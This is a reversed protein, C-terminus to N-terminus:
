LVQSRTLQSVGSCVSLLLLLTAAVTGTGFSCDSCGESGPQPRAVTTLDQGTSFWLQVELSPRPTKCPLQSVLAGSVLLKVNKEKSCGPVEKAHNGTGDM